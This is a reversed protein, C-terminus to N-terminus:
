GSKELYTAALRATASDPYEQLVRNLYYVSEDKKGLQDHIYGLKYLAHPVRKHQPFQEILQMFAQRSEEIKPDPLALYIEGMWFLAAPATEGEPYQDLLARFAEVASIFDQQRVMGFAAEYASQEDGYISMDVASSPDSPEYGQSSLRRELASYHTDQEEQLRRLALGQEEIAGNIQAVQDELAELRQLFHGFEELLNQTATEESSNSSRRGRVSSSATPPYLLPPNDTSQETQNNKRQAFSHAPFLLALCAIGLLLAPIFVSKAM